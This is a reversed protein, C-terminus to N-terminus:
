FCVWELVSEYVKVYRAISFLSMHNISFVPGRGKVHKPQTLCPEHLAPRLHIRLLLSILTFDPIISESRFLSLKYLSNLIIVKNYYKYSSTFLNNNNHIKICYIVCMFYVCVVVALYSIPNGVMM